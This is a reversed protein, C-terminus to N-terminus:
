ERWIVHDENSIECWDVSCLVVPGDDGILVVGIAFLPDSIGIAPKVWGACLPHGIPPTVDARFTAMELDPM